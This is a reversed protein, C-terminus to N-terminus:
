CLKEPIWTKPNQCYNISNGFHHHLIHLKQYYWYVLFNFSISSSCSLVLLIAHAGLLSESWGACGRLRNIKALCKIPLWPGLAEEHSSCLSKDSLAFVWASRLWRQAWLDNQQNQWAGAWKIIRYIFIIIIINSLVGVIPRSNVAQIQLCHQM